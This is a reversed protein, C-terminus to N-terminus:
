SFVGCECSLAMGGAPISGATGAFSRGCVWTKSSLGGPNSEKM